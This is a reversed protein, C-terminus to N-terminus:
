GVSGRRKNTHHAQPAQTRARTKIEKVQALLRFWNAKRAFAARHQRPVSIKDAAAKEYIKAIRLYQQATKVIVAL